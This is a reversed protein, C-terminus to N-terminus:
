RRCVFGQEAEWHGTTKRWVLRDSLSGRDNVGGQWIAEDTVLPILDSSGFVACVAVGDRGGVCM